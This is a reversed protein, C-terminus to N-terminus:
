GVGKRMEWGVAAIFRGNECIPENKSSSLLLRDIYEQGHLSRHVSEVDGAETREREDPARAKEEDLDSDFSHRIKLDHEEPGPQPRGGQQGEDQQTPERHRAADPQPTM